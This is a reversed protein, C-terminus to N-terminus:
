EDDRREMPSEGAAQVAKASGLGVAVAETGERRGRRVSPDAAMGFRGSRLHLDRQPFPIEVGHERFARDIAFNLQSQLMMPRTTYDATWVRLRFDLSSEGFAGLLVDPFPGALVGPTARAVERLIVSDRVISSIAYRVGLDVGRTALPRDTVWKRLKGTVWVLVGVAAVLLVLKRLTITSTGIEFLPFSLIAELHRLLTGLEM